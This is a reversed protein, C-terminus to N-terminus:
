DNIIPIMKSIPKYLNYPLIESDFKSVSVFPKPKPEHKIKKESFKVKEGKLITLPLKNINTTM